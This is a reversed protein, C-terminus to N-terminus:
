RRTSARAEPSATAAGSDGAAAVMRDIAGGVFPACVVEGRSARRAILLSAVFQALYTACVLGGAVVSSGRVIPPAAEHHLSATGHTLLEAALGGFLLVLAVAGAALLGGFAVLAQAACRRTFVDKALVLVLLMPAPGFLAGAPYCRAGNAWPSQPHASM